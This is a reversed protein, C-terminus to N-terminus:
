ERPDPECDRRHGGAGAFRFGPKLRVLINYNEDRRSKAADADLPLPLFVDVKDMPGESPMVEANLM